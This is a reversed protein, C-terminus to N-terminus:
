KSVGTIEKTDVINELAFAGTNIATKEAVAAKRFQRLIPSILVVITLLTLIDASPFALFVGDLQWYHSMVLVLPILFLIPRVIATIFSQTAKGIAQFILQGVMVGGMFPLSLFILRSAYMGMDILTQDTTFVRIIPGPILYIVAFALISTVTSFVGAMYIGKNALHYRKAGYNFGLIPQLGQGFVMAPMTAFIMVRQIIGFAELATDGGYTIVMRIMLMASLSATITQVFAAIGIALMQRLISFDLRLNRVHIKLYSSGTLYYSFLYIMSVIQSIITALGAGVVGMKMPIVFIADLIISLIAGMMMAVMGVRANGEARVFSLLSMAFVNFVTGSMIIVLYPSAYPMVEDTAGILRLWFGSFPAILVTVLVAMIIAVSIGNGITREAGSIDGKGILRSILSAGGIGVMQSVGWSVMQLPFVISLGAIGLPGVFHGIFITNIVNYLTQVFMGFFVPTALKFLLPGIRDTDLVNNVHNQKHIQM